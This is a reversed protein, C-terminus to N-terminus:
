SRTVLVATLRPERDHATADDWLRAKVMTADSSDGELAIEIVADAHAEETLASPEEEFLHIVLVGRGKFNPIAYCTAGQDNELYYIKDQRM